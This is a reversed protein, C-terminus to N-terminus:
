RGQGRVLRLTAAHTIFWRNGQRFTCIAVQLNCGLFQSIRGRRRAFLRLLRSFLYQDEGLTITLKSVSGVMNLCLRRLGGM